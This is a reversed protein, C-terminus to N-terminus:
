FTLINDEWKDDVHWSWVSVTKVDTRFWWWQRCTKKQQRPLVIYVQMWIRPRHWTTHWHRRRTQRDIQPWNACKNVDRDKGTMAWQLRIWNIIEWLCQSFQIWTSVEKGQKCSQHWRFNTNWCFYIWKWNECLKIPWFYTKSQVHIAKLMITSHHICWAGQSMNIPSTAHVM